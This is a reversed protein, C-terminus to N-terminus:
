LVKILDSYIKLALNSEDESTIVDDINYSWHAQKYIPERIAMAEAIHKQLEEDSKDKVSPRTRKCLELRRYLTEQSGELYIVLGTDLLLQMNDEYCPLGGGTAFVTAEMGLLEEMIYREKKRFSPEGETAFIDVIRKHYRSELFVDTDVFDYALLDALKKGLTSKGTGMYGVLYITKM